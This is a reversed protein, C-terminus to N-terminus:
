RQATGNLERLWQQAAARVADTAPKGARFALKWEAPKAQYAPNVFYKLGNNGDRLQADYDVDATIDLIQQLRQKILPMPDSPFQTEFNKMADNYTKLRLEYNRNALDYKRKITPNNPDDLSQIEKKINEIQAAANKKITPNPSNLSTEMTAMRKDLLLKEEAKISEVTKVEPKPPLGARFPTSNINQNELYQKKFEGSNVYKKAYAVLQNVVAVRDGKAINKANIAGFYYLHGDSFSEHIQKEGAPATMGLLKWVDDAMKKAKMAMTFFGLIFIVVLISVIKFGASLPTLKPLKM